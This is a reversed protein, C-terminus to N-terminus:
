ATRHHARNQARKGPRTLIVRGVVVVAQEPREFVAEADRVVDTVGGVDARDGLDPPLPCRCSRATKPKLHVVAFSMSPGGVLSVDVQDVPTMDIVRSPHGRWALLDPLDNGVYEVDSGPVFTPVGPM